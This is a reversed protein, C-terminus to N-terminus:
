QALRFIVFVRTGDPPLVDKDGVFEVLNHQTTGTPYSANSTIGAACSDLCLICGANATKAVELNGAFRYDSPREESAKILDDFPIEGKSGEWTVFVDLKSGEVSVGSDPGAKMDDMKVNNGPVAGIEVLAEHFKKEDSLARLISKEGNSGGVYSVGHRTPVDFYKGNVEAPVIVERKEKNVEISLDTRAAWVPCSFTELAVLALFVVACAVYKKM